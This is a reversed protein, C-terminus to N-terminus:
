FEYYMKNKINIWLKIIKDHMRLAYIMFKNDDNVM